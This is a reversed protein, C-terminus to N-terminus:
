PQLAASSLSGSDPDPTTRLFLLQHCAHLLCLSPHPFPCFRYFEDDIFHPCFFLIPPPVQALDRM